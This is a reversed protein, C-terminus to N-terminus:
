RVKGALELCWNYCADNPDVKGEVLDDFFTCAQAAWVEGTCGQAMTILNMMERVQNKTAGFQHAIVLYGQVCDRCRVAAYIAAMTIAKTTSDIEGDGLAWERLSMMNEACRNTLEDTTHKM